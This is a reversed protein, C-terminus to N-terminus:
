KNKDIIGVTFTISEKYTGAATKDWESKAITVNYNKTGTETFYHTHALTGEGGGINYSIKSSSNKENVLKLNTQNVQLARSTPLLRLFTVQVPLKTSTANFAINLTSPIVVTYSEDLTTTLVTEPTNSASGYETALATTGCLLCLTLISAFIKKMITKIM